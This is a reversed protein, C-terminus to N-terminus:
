RDGLSENEDGLKSIIAELEEDVNVVNAASKDQEGTVLWKQLYEASDLFVQEPDSYLGCNAIAIRPHIGAELQNQLGQTKTLLNDTKNRTFKIEIDGLSLSQLTPDGQLANLVYALFRREAAVFQKEMSKAASEAMVWGQGVILAQGTNGGASAKRDPVAAITLMMQYTYDVLTQVQQQDLTATLMQINAPMNGSSKTQIVGNARLRDIKDEDVECNNFWILSQIIQEIGDERNSIATNLADILPLVIEFAGQRTPNHRYEFIPIGTAFEKDEVIATLNKIAWFHNKSYVSYVTGKDGESFTCAFVPERRFDNSYAVFTTRPDCVYINLTKNELLAMRYAVGCEYFWQGLESDKASKDQVDMLRNLYAIGKDDGANGGEPNEGRYVYQVPEGFTFGTKFNVIEAAHNEVIKNCIEPRVEKQRLLINHKGVYYGHLFEIDQRNQRHINVAKKLAGLVNERTISREDVLIERRGYYNLHPFNDSM